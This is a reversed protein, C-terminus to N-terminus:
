PHAPLSIWVDTGGEADQAAHANGGHAIAIAEVIALGLGAGGRGRARDGRTFREFAVAAFGPPFGPGSDSVHLELGPGHQVASVTIKGAGHRLANEVLNGLAQEVRLSDLHARLGDPVDVAIARGHESARREFRDRVGSLTAALDVDVRRVPLRGQDARAIVLLDEALQAMRDTEEAASRLAAELEARTHEGRLAIELETKLIGLPTRLEHSTDSVFRRERAFADELRTIMENLTTGLRSVEDDARPVPMRLGPENASIDAARRRMSEIPRLAAAVAVYGALSALALAIAGGILLLAGLQRLADDRDALSTGVIVVLHRGQARTPTALLRSPGDVGAIRARKVFFSRALARGVQARTLVPGGRVEPTADFIRGRADLIQAFGEGRGSLPTGGSQRLGSDAQSVLAIVDGTRSRLGQDVTHSLRADFRLDLFLGTGALTAAMALVFIATVKLRIPVRSV